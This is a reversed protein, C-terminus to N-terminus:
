KRLAEIADDVQRRFGSWDEPPFLADHDRQGLHFASLRKAILERAVKAAPDGPRETVLRSLTLLRRYDDLGERLREFEISPILQGDPSSNCWAYDDERCDLGYYPDGAVVNWHWAIRFKMGFQKAAQYMYTGYTWRNGGNYFAWDGGVQHLLDVSAEDHDNWAPASLAKSLRFAPSGRNSGTFSTAATFFPPGKPFARRYSEANEASRILDDSSPEDGLNYYVPIWGSRDAHQQVESYIARIFGAYDKFGATTMAATDQFYSNIGSVGGGYTVAALFGLDKVYKMQPDATRFDLLPRGNKFGKYMISPLGSFATFGYERLKRLSKEAMLANFRSAERDGGHWPISIKFGFPGAPIDVADLTGARVRFELPVQSTVGSEPRIAVM